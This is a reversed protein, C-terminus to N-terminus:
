DHLESLSKWTRRATVHKVVDLAVGYEAMVQKRSFGSARMWLIAYATDPGIGGWGRGKSHMDRVNATNDGLFLHEPNVCGANDCRHLVWRGKPIDGHALQYSVRHALMLRGKSDPKKPGGLMGYGKNNKNATWEWCGDGKKVKEFFREELSAKKRGSM